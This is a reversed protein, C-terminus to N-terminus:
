GKLGLNRILRSLYTPNVGLEQAAQVQNGGSRDLAGAIIRRKAERVSTHYGGGQPVPAAELITEPLDEPLIWEASGLVAAREIANELERVNGPWDYQMLCARADPSIGAIKRGIRAALRSAFFNALDPIDERRERLPPMELAVVNLRYYLDARFQGNRVAEALDRNTAAILRLDVRLTRTGGVREFEREQLVRLLKAQLAPALEGIEDLFLTGEGALELRGRKAAIAGTFAGKEHGFLESELLEPNLTACNVAVFPKGRRASNNHIARAALEKGTGSEGEILVTSDAAAARAVVQLVGRIRRSQGILGHDLGTATRLRQNEGDLYEVHSANNLALAAICGAAGLFQLHGDDLVREDAEVRLLALVRGACVLPVLARRRDELVAVSDSAARRNALSIGAPPDVSVRSPPLAERVLEALRDRLSEPDRVQAIETNIRLLAALDRAAREGHALKERHLYVSDEPRLVLTETADQVIGAAPARGPRDEASCLFVFVSEGVKLQDGNSLVQEAVPAQNLYTGNRSELDRVYFSEQRRFILCHQRSVAPDDLCLANAADRGLVFETQDLLFATGKLPGGLAILQATM